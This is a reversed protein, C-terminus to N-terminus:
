KAPVGLVSYFADHPTYDTRWLLPSNTRGPVPYGNKWSTDDTVGWLTVRDIKDRKEYFIRFLEEYRDALQQEIEAPLGEKGETPSCNPFPPGM